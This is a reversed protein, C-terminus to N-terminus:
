LILVTDRCICTCIIYIGEVTRMIIYTAISMTYYVASYLTNCLPVLKIYITHIYLLM